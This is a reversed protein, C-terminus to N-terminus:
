LGTAPTGPFFFSKTLRRRSPALAPQKPGQSQWGTSHSPRGRPGIGVSALDLALALSAARSPSACACECVCALGLFGVMSLPRRCWWSVGPGPGAGLAEPWIGNDRAPKGAERAEAQSPDHSTHETAELNARARGWRGRGQDPQNNPPRQTKPRQDPAKPTQLRQLRQPRAEPAKSGRGTADVGDLLDMANSETPSEVQQCDTRGSGRYRNPRMGRTLDKKGKMPVDAWEEADTHTQAWGPTRTDPGHTKGQDTHAVSAVPNALLTQAHHASQRIAEKPMSDAQEKCAAFLMSLVRVRETSVACGEAFLSFVGDVAMEEPVSGASGAHGYAQMHMCHLLALLVAGCPQWRM